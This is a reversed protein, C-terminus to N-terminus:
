RQLPMIRVDRGELRQKLHTIEFSLCNLREEVTGQGCDRTNLVDRRRDQQASGPAQMALVILAVTLAIAIRDM